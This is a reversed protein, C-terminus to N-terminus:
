SQPSLWIDLNMRYLKEICELLYDCKDAALKENGSAVVRMLECHAYNIKKILEKDNNYQLYYLRRALAHLPIIASEAFPNRACKAIFQNFEQDIRVAEREDGEETVKAYEEALKLFHEREKPTSFKAARTAILRELLRRVEIQLFIEELKVETVMMGRRPMISVLHASELRKIAERVPMRGIGLVESLEKESILQGPQLELTVIMEELRSYAIDALSKSSSNKKKEKSEMIKEGKDM